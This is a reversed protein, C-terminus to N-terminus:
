VGPPATQPGNGFTTLLANLDAVHFQASAHFPHPPHKRRKLPKSRFENMGASLCLRKTSEQCDASLAVVANSIMMTMTSSTRKKPIPIMISRPMSKTNTGLLRFTSLGLLSRPLEPPYSSLLARQCKSVRLTELANPHKDAVYRM